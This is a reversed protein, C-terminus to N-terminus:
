FKNVITYKIELLKWQFDQRKTEESSTLSWGGM